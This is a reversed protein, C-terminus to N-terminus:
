AIDLLQQAFLITPILWGAVRNLLYKMIAQDHADIRKRTTERLRPWETRLAIGEAEDRIQQLEPHALDGAARLERARQSLYWFTRLEGDMIVTDM